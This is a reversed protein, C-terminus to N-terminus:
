GSTILRLRRIHDKHWPLTSSKKEADKDTIVKPLTIELIGNDVKATIGDRNVDDPLVYTQQYNSYSFERRLYHESRTTRAKRKRTSWRTRLPLM